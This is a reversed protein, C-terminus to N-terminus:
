GGQLLARARQLVPTMEPRFSPDEKLGGELIRLAKRVLPVRRPRPSAEARYILAAGRISQAAGHRPHWQLAQDTWALAEERLAASDRGQRQAFRMAIFATHALSGYPRGARPKRAALSTFASRARALAPGPDQELAEESRAVFLDLRGKALDLDWDRRGPRSFGELIGRLISAVSGPDERRLYACALRLPVATCALDAFDDPAAKQALLEALRRLCRDVLISAQGPDGQSLCAQALRLLSEEHVRELLRTEGLERIGREVRDLALRRQPRSDQGQDEREVARAADLGVQMALIGPDGPTAAAAEELTERVRDLRFGTPEKLHHAFDARLLQQGALAGLLAPDGPHLRKAQLLTEEALAADPLGFHLDERGLLLSRAQHLEAQALLIPLSLPDARRGSECAAGAQALIAEAAAPDDGRVEEARALRWKALGAWHGPCSPARETLERWCREVQDLAQSRQAPNRAAQARHEWAEAEFRLVEFMWPTQELTRRALFITRGDDEELYARVTDHYSELGPASRGLDFCALAPTRLRAALRDRQAQAIAPSRTDIREMGKQYLRLYAEGLAEAVEPLRLGLSWATNLCALAKEPQELALYGQGQAYAGPAAALSGLIGTRAQIEQLRLALWAMQGRRDHLPSMATLRLCQAMQLAETGFRQALEAQRRARRSLALGWAGACALVLLAAAVAHFLPRRRGYTRRLRELPGARRALIPAGRLWRELDEALHRASEYRRAPDKELCVLIITELDPPLDPALSRPPAPDGDLVRRLAELAHPDPTAEPPMLPRSEEQPPFPTSAYSSTHAFPPIGTCVAYLTAGLGYVDSRANLPSGGTIQEPSLYFPTGTLNGGLSLTSGDLQRALGFDMVVARLAQDPGEEVMINRPKLDRHVLGQLHAAHAARAAQAVLEARQAFTLGPARTHLDQGQIYEMSICPLGDQLGVEHIRRINPHDMVAMFQAELLLCRALAPEERRIFKLAVWRNLHRDRGKYVLGM